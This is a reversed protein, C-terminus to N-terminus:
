VKKFEYKAQKLADVERAVALLQSDVYACIAAYLPAAPLWAQSLPAPNFAAPM